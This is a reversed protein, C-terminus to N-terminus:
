GLSIDRELEGMKARQKTWNVEACVKRLGKESIEPKGAEVLPLFLLAEQIDTALLTLNLIQTMRPQSVHALSALTSADPVAGSRLLQDCRIALAMLKSIRPVRGTTWAPAPPPEVGLRITRRCGGRRGGAHALHFEREVVVSM